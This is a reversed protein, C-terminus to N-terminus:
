SPVINAALQAPVDVAPQATPNPSPSLAIRPMADLNGTIELDVLEM